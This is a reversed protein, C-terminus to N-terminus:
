EYYSVGEVTGDDKNGGTHRGGATVQVIDTWDGVNCRRDDNYGVAVVTGDVKLGVTHRGGAAFRVIDTWDGVNCEGCYNPGAAVVTGDSRLGATHAWGAAVMPTVNGQLTNLSMTLILSPSDVTSHSISHNDTMPMAVSAGVSVPLILSLVLGICLLVKQFIREKKM